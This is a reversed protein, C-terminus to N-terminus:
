WAVPLSEVGYVVSFHRFAVEDVPRVSRLTPFRRLLAPYAIRMEMRALPAGLCHHIGHGFAVHSTQKRGIDFRDADETLAPDRNAAPLSCLAMEGAKILQGGIEVDQKAYRPLVGHVISLYRMLEEIAQDILGGDETDRLLATQDPHQLLLLTGVGLMNSTTEHGALLLLDSVSVLEENTLEDGHERILMGIMGEDPEIRQREVLEVMMERSAEGIKRREEVPRRMDLRGRALEQFEGRGDYPVGLLECIVLSPIPLAFEAVLDVPSGHAQMTDLHQTVIEEIRPQLRRIRRVTFEGTLMRRLRTHEPPDDTILSGLFHNGVMQPNRNSFRTADGLVARVDEYRTVLWGEMQEFLRFRSVPQQERLRALEPAPDFRDRRVHVPMTTSMTTPATTPVTTAGTSAETM